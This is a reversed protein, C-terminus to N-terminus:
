LVENPSILSIPFVSHMWNLKVGPYQMFIVRIFFQIAHPKILSWLVLYLIAESRVNNPLSNWKKSPFYRFNLTSAILLLLLNVYHYFIILEGLLTYLSVCLLCTQLINLFVKMYNLCKYITILMNQIRRNYLTPGGSNHLLQQYSSVKDFFM